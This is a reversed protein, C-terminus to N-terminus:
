ATCNWGSTCWVGFARLKVLIEDLERAELAVPRHAGVALLRDALDALLDAVL